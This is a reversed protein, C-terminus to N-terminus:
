IHVLELVVLFRKNSVYWTDYFAQGYKEIFKQEIFESLKSDAELSIAEYNCTLGKIKIECKKNTKLNQYWDTGLGSERKHSLMYIREKEYYFCLEVEHPKGSKRGATILNLYHEKFLVNWSEDM